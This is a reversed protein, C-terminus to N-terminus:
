GRARVKVLEDCTLVVTEGSDLAVEFWTGEVNAAATVTGIQGSGPEDAAGPVADEWVVVDPPFQTAYGHSWAVRDGAEFMPQIQTESM